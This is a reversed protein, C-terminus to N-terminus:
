IYIRVIMKLNFMNPKNPGREYRTRLSNHLFSAMMFFSHACVIHILALTGMRM